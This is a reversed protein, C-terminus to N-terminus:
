QIKTIRKLIVAVPIAILLYAVMWPPVACADWGPVVGAFRYPEAVIETMVIGATDHSILSTVGREGDCVLPHVVTRSGHRFHLEIPTESAAPVLTWEAVGNAVNGAAAVDPVVVRLYGDAAAVGETPVIHVWQDIAMPTLYARVTVPAGPALPATALRAAAWCTLGIIPILSAPLPKLEAKMSVIGIMGLTARHRGAADRDSARKAAKLLRKLTQKDRHCRLLMDQDTTALRIFALVVSTLVAVLILRLDMPLGVAWGLLGDMFAVVADNIKMLFTMM